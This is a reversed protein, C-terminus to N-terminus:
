YTCLLYCDLGLKHAEVLEVVDLLFAEIIIALQKCKEEGNENM